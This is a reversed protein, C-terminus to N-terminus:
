GGFVTTLAGHKDTLARQLNRILTHRQVLPLGQRIMRVEIELMLDLEMKKLVEDEVPALNDSNVLLNALIEDETFERFVTMPCDHQLCLPRVISCAWRESLNRKRTEWICGERSDLFKMGYTVRM